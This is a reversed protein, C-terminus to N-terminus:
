RYQGTCSDIYTRPYFHQGHEPFYWEVADYARQERCYGLHFLVVRASEPRGEVGIQGPAVYESIGAGAAQAGGWSTWHIHRIRGEPDGGNYITSPKVHGYGEEDLSARSGAPPGALIPVTSRLAAPLPAPAGAGPYLLTGVLSSGAAEGVYLCLEASGPDEPTFSFDGFSAGSGERVPGVWVGHSADFVEPCGTAEPYASVEGFWACAEAGCAETVEVSGELEWSDPLAHIQGRGIDEEARAVVPSALGVSVLVATLAAAAWGSGTHARYTM